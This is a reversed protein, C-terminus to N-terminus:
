RVIRIRRTSGPVPEIASTRSSWSSRHSSMVTPTGAQSGSPRRTRVTSTSSVLRSVNSSSGTVGAQRCTACTRSTSSPTTNRAFSSGVSVCTHRTSAAPVSVRSVSSGPTCVATTPEFTVTSVDAVIVPRGEVRTSTSPADTPTIVDVVSVGTSKVAGVNKTPPARSSRM